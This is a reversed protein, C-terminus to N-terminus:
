VYILVERLLNDTEFLTETIHEQIREISSDCLRVLILHSPLPSFIGDGNPVISRREVSSNKIITLSKKKPTQNKTGM